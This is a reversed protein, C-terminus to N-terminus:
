RADAAGTSARPALRRELERIRKNLRELTQRVDTALGACTACHFRTAPSKRVPYPYTEGCARCTRQQIEDDTAPM